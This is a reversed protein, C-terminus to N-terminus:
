KSKEGLSKIVRMEVEQSLTRFDDNACKELKKKISPTFRVTIIETKKEKM